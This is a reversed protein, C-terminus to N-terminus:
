RFLFFILLGTEAVTSGAKSQFPSQFSLGEGGGGSRDVKPNIKLLLDGLMGFTALSVELGIVRAFQIMHNASLGAIQRHPDFHTPPNGSFFDELLRGASNSPYYKTRAAGLGYQTETRSYLSFIHAGGVCVNAGDLEDAENQAVSEM